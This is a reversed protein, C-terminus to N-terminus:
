EASPADAAAEEDEELIRAVSIVREKANRDVSILRVGKTNRGIESVGNVQLRILTGADTIIMVSDNTTVQVADSVRGNREDVKITILGVGGRTQKRYEDISTRKGYGYETVTLISAGENLVEMSVVGDGDRLAIGKVGVAQRGLPRADSEAFRIAMGDRTSLLLDHQGNTIKVSVLEDEPEIGCAILGNSRPNSYALLDTKKIKGRRTCTVVFAEEEKEPFRRVPLIARVKEGEALQVLNVIPRGKAQAGALPVEHVKLWFVKGLNTFTLLYAHTSAVFADRIFDEERAVAAQKGKGGRRQARYNSLPARKIYGMHSVTVLMDEEPILDEDTMNGVGGGILTRRPTAFQTKIEILENKIVGMLVRLNGLIEQLRTITLLL